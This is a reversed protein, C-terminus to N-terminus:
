YKIDTINYKYNTSVEGNSINLITSLELVVKLCDIMANIDEISLFEKNTENFYKIVDRKFVGTKELM